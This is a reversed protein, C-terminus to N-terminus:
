PGAIAITYGIAAVNVVVREGAVAEDGRFGAFRQTDLTKAGSSIAGAVEGAEAMVKVSAGSVLVIEAPVLTSYRRAITATM